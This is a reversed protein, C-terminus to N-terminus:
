FIPHQDEDRVRLEEFMDHGINTAAVWIVVFKAPHETMREKVNAEAAVLINDDRVRDVVLHRSGVGPQGQPPPALWFPWDARADAALRCAQCRQRQALPPDPPLAALVQRASTPPFPVFLGRRVQIQPFFTTWIFKFTICPCLSIRASFWFINLTTSLLMRAKPPLICPNSTRWRAVFRPTDSVPASASSSSRMGSSSADGAVSQLLGRESNISQCSYLSPIM